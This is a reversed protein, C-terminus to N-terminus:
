RAGFLSVLPTDSLFVVTYNSCCLETTSTEKEPLLPKLFYLIVCHAHTCVLWRWSRVQFLCFLHSLDALEDWLLVLYHCKKKKGGLFSCFIFLYIVGPQWTEVTTCPLTFSGLSDIRPVWLKRKTKKKCVSPTFYWHWMLFLALHTHPQTLPPPNKGKLVNATCCNTFM